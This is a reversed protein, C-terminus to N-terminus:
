TDKKSEKNYKKNVSLIITKTNNIHMQGFDVDELNFRPHLNFKPTFRLCYCCYCFIDVSFWTQKDGIIFTIWIKCNQISNKLNERIRCSVQGIQDYKTGRKYMCTQCGPM